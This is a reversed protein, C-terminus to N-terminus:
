HQTHFHLSFVHVTHSEFDKNLSLVMLYLLYSVFGFKPVHTNFLFLLSFSFGEDNSPM